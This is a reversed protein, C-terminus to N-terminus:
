PTTTTSPDEDVTIALDSKGSVDVHVLAAPGVKVTIQPAWATWRFDLSDAMQQIAHKVADIVDQSTVNSNMAALTQTAVSVFTGTLDVVKEVIKEVPMDKKVSSALIAPLGFNRVWSSYAAAFKNWWRLLVKSARGLDGHRILPVLEAVLPKVIVGGLESSVFDVLDAGLNLDGTFSLGSATATAYDAANVIAPTPGTAPTVGFGIGAFRLARIEAGSVSFGAQEVSPHQSGSVIRVSAGGSGTCWTVSVKDTFLEPLAAVAYGANDTVVTLYSQCSSSVGERTWTQAGCDSCGSSNWVATEGDSSIQITNTATGAVTCPDSSSFVNETGTFYGGGQATDKIDGPTSACGGDVVYGSYTSAGTQSFDYVAGNTKSLWKGALSLNANAAATAKLSSGAVAPVATTSLGALVTIAVLLIALSRPWSLKSTM